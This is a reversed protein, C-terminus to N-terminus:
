QVRDSIKKGNTLKDLNNQESFFYNLCAINYKVLDIELENNNNKTISTLDSMYCIEFNKFSEEAM